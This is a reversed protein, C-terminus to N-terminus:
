LFFDSYKAPDVAVAIFHACEGKFILMKDEVLTGYRITYCNIRPFWVVKVWLTVIGIGYM